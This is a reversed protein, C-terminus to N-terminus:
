LPNSPFIDAHLEKSNNPFLINESLFERKSNFFSNLFYM